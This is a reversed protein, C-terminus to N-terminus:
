KKNEKKKKLISRGGVNRRASGCKEEVVSKREQGEAVIAPRARGADTGIAVAELELILRAIEVVACARAVQRRVDLPVHGVPELEIEVCLPDLGPRRVVVDEDRGRRGGIVFM